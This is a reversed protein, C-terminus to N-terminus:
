RERGQERIWVEQSTATDNRAQNGAVAVGGGEGGVGEAMVVEEVVVIIAAAAVAQMTAVAVAAAVVAVAPLCPRMPITLSGAVTEM